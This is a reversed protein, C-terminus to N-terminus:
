IRLTQWGEDDTWLRPQRCRRSIRWLQEQGSATTTGTTRSACTAAGPATGIASSCRSRATAPRSRSRRPTCGDRKTPAYWSTTTASTAHADEVSEPVLYNGFALTPLADPEEWTASFAATWADGGDYGWADNAREFACDGLGRLLVNEGIRLVALDRIGDGDIDLPYAGVM